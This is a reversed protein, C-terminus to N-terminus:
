PTPVDNCVLKQAEAIHGKIQELTQVMKRVKGQEAYGHFAVMLTAIESFAGQAKKIALDEQTLDIMRQAYKLHDESWEKWVEREARPLEAFPSADAPLKLNQSAVRRQAEYAPDHKIVASIVSEVQLSFNPWDEHCLRKPNAKCSLLVVPLFFILFSKQFYIRAM